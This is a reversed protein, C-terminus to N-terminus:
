IVELLFITSTITKQYLGYTKIYVLEVSFLKLVVCVPASSVMGVLEMLTCLVLLVVIFVQLIMSCLTTIFLLAVHQLLFLQFSVLEKVSVSVSYVTMTVVTVLNLVDVLLQRKYM